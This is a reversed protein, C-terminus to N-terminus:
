GYSLQKTQWGTIRSVVKNILDSFYVNRPRGVFLPCGLYTILGQKQKFGTLRRIRDKTSSFASPHLMFNSKDGNILQGSVKEYERLTYMLLKLTKSRGSTFLIIDDAFSLHNVQPGRQEMIFGHYKPHNHLMNLSRSLVEAGLIFLAPSLPDGQKLGRTSQFFGYRKGNIIVSYWNNAMIRWIMDIFVENFGMKRLVLCIYSWSVRDYAKAM